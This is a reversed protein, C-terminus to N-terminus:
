KSPEAPKPPPPNTPAENTPQSTQNPNEAPTQASPLTIAMPVSLKEYHFSSLDQTIQPQTRDTKSEM